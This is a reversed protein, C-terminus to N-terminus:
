DLGTSARQLVCSGFWFLYVFSDVQFLDHDECTVAEKKM